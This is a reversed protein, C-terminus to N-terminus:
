RGGRLYREIRLSEVEFVNAARVNFVGPSAISVVTLVQANWGGPDFEFVSGPRLPMTTTVTGTVPSGAVVSGDLSHVKRIEVTM